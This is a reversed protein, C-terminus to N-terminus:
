EDHEIRAAGKPTHKLWIREAERHGLILWARAYVDGVTGDFFSVRKEFSMSQTAAHILAVVPHVKGSVM